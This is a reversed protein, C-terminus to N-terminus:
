LDKLRKIGIIARLNEVYQLQESSVVSASQVFRLVPPFFFAIETFQRLNSWYAWASM